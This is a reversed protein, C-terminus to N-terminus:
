RFDVVRRDTHVTCGHWRGWGDHIVDRLEEEMIIVEIPVRLVGPVVVDLCSADHFLPTFSLDTQIASLFAKEVPSEVSLHASKEFSRGGGIWMEYGAGTKRHFNDRSL